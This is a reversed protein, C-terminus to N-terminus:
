CLRSIETEVMLQRRLADVEMRKQLLLAPDMQEGPSHLVRDDQARNLPAVEPQQGNTNIQMSQLTASMATIQQSLDSVASQMGDVATNFQDQKM